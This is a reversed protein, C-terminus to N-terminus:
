RRWGNRRNIHNSKNTHHSLDISLNEIKIKEKRNHVLRLLYTGRHTIDKDRRFWYSYMDTWSPLVNAHFHLTVHGSPLLCSCHDLWRFIAGNLFVCAVVPSVHFFPVYLSSALIRAFLYHAALILESINDSELRVTRSSLHLTSKSLLQRVLAIWLLLLSGCVLLTSSYILLLM